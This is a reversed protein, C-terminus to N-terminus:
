LGEILLQVRQCYQAKRIPYVVTDSCGYFKLRPLDDCLINVEVINIVRLTRFCTNTVCRKVSYGDNLITQGRWLIMGVVQAHMHNVSLGKVGVTAM